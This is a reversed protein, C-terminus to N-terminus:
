GAKRLQSRIMRTIASRRSRQGKRTRPSLVTPSIRSRPRAQARSRARLTTAMHPRVLLPSSSTPTPRIHRLPRVTSSSDLTVAMLNNAADYAGTNSSADYTGLIESWTTASPYSISTLNSRTDYGFTFSNGLWDSMSTMRGDADYGYNVVTNTSSAPDACDSGTVVPYAVCTNDGDFDYAYGVTGSSDTQSLVEGQADYSWTTTNTETSSVVDTMTNPLNSYNYSWSSGGVPVATSCNASLNNVPAQWCQEGAANYATTVVTGNGETELQPRGDADYQYTTPGNSGGSPPTVETVQAPYAEDGRTYITKNGSPDTSTVVNGLEDFSDYTYGAHRADSKRPCQYTM